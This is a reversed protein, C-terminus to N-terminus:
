SGVVTVGGAAAQLEPATSGPSGVHGECWGDHVDGQGWVQAVEGERRARGGGEGKLRGLLCGGVQSRRQLSRLFQCYLNSSLIGGNVKHEITM